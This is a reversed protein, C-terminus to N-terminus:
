SDSALLSSKSASDISSVVHANSVEHIQRLTILLYMYRQLLKCHLPVEIAALEYTSKGRAFTM